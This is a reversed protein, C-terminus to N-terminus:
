QQSEKPTTVRVFVATAREYDDRIYSGSPQHGYASQLGRMSSADAGCIAFPLLVTLLALERKSFAGSDRASDLLAQLEFPSPM